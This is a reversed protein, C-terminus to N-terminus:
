LQIKKRTQLKTLGTKVTNFITLKQLRKNPSSLFTSFLSCFRKFDNLLITLDSSCVSLCRSMGFVFIWDQYNCIKNRIKTKENKIWYIILLIVYRLDSIVLLSITKDSRMYCSNQFIQPFNYLIIVFGVFSMMLSISSQRKFNM